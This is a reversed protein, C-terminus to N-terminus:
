ADDDQMTPPNKRFLVRRNFLRRKSIASHDVALVRLAPDDFISDFAYIEDDFFALAEDPDDFVLSLLADQALLQGVTM